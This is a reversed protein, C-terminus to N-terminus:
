RVELAERFEALEQNMTEQEEETFPLQIVGLYSALGQQGLVSSQAEGLAAMLAGADPDGHRWESQAVLLAKQFEKLLFVYLDKSELDEERTEVEFAQPHDEHVQEILAHLTDFIRFYERQVAGCDSFSLFPWRAILAVCWDPTPALDRQQVSPDLMERWVRLIPYYPAEAEPIPAESNDFEALVDEAFLPEMNDNSM